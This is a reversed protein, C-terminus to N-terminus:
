ARAAAAAIPDADRLRAAVPLLGALVDSAALVHSAAGPRTLVATDVALARLERRTVAWSSSGAYDAFFGRAAAQGRALRAPDIGAGLYAAVAAPRGGERLAAELVSRQEALARTAEPVFAHLPTDVLVLGRVLAPHRRAADLAILAGFGDGLLLAPAAGLGRM